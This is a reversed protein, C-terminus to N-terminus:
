LYGRRDTQKCLDQPTTQRVVDNYVYAHRHNMPSNLEDMQDWTCRRSSPAIPANAYSCTLCVTVSWSLNSSLLGPATCEGGREQDDNVTLESQKIALLQLHVDTGM